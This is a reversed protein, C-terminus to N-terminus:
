GKRNKLRRLLNTKFLHQFSKFKYFVSLPFEPFSFKNSPIIHIIFHIQGQSSYFVTGTLLVFARKEFAMGIPFDKDLHLM